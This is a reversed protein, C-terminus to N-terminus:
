QRDLTGQVVIVLFSPANYYYRTSYKADGYTPRGWYLGECVAVICVIPVRFCLVRCM